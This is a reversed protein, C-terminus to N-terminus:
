IDGIVIEKGLLSVATVETDNFAIIVNNKKQCPRLPIEDEIAKHANQSRRLFCREQPESQWTNLIRGQGQFFGRNRLLKETEITIWLFFLM